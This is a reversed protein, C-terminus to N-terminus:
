KKKSFFKWYVLGGLIAAELFIIVGLLIKNYIVNRSMARILRRTRSLEADTDVLRDRTRELSERQVGLEGIVETGIQETEAAIVHSRALSESTRELSATGDLVQQRIQSNIDDNDRSSSFLITRNVAQDRSNEEQQLRSKYRNVEGQYRQIKANMNSRYKPPAKRTEIDMDVLMGKTEAVADEIERLIRKREELSRCRPLGFEFKSSISDLIAQVEEDLLEYRQSSAM